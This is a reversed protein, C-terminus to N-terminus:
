DRHMPVLRQLDAKDPMQHLKRTDFLGVKLGM